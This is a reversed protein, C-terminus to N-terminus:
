EVIALIEAERVILLLEDDVKVETGAFKEFFVKDGVKVSPEVLDGNLTRSGAGVAVVEAVQPKEQASSALVIGGINKEEEKKVRLVIRDGLPKLM